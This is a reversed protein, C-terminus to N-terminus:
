ALQLPSCDATPEAPSQISAELAARVVQIFDDLDELRAQCLPCLLLHEELPVSEPDSLTGMAFRELTDDPVHVAAANM